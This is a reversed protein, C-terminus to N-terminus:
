QEQEGSAGWMISSSWPGSAGWMISNGWVASFGSSTSAGWMISSGALGSAGWMISSGGTTGAGWMISSGGTTSAGWMISSGGIFQSSGWVAPGSWTQSTGWVSSPNSTLYVNGTSSDYVATPSMSTGTSLDTSALAAAMDVYGAGVTFIDYQSTYTIGSAPDYVSSSTPFTKSATKMLRAKVQDPTMTPHAQLLDAVMGSVVGTAMSTGSLEFYQKSPTSSGGYVYASYPVLNDPETNYLATNTTETSVLLNGPAVVDPKVIHDLVTPGKSSYSAILDDSRDATGMPKMSGVTLVYPDNAPSNVTAYGSTPLYRGNNGAAVVVVIGSKWAKEVAQCLPDLTYSEFVGRGLSLNIVRINYRSKLSVAQNIAAIVTSDTASGNADLVRLNVIQANPAIGKFTQSFLPGTSSLGSGAILGAIHTGHGYADAASSNGPVFSQNYVVRSIPLLLSTTTLDPHSNVGSDILAVGIGSGTFNSKWAASANVAPAANDFFPSLTRDKSIYVVNSQNSLAVIGNHDLSAVLGNVLPLQGLVTGGLKVVDNLVCGVLGLLGSCSLQTGPVYQIVVQVQGTSTSNQLDPSIKSNDAFMALPMALLLLSLILKRGIM